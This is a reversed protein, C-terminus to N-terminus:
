KNAEKMEMFREAINKISFGYDKSILDGKGSKGFKNVDISIGDKGAFNKLECDSSMEITMINKENKAIIRNQYEESQSKFSNINPMSVVDTNIGKENLEKQVRIALSVESGTAILCGDLNRNKNKSIIYGGYKVGNEDSTKIAPINQRTLVLVSPKSKDNAIQKWCGLVERADAPRFVNLNPMSRFGALQEVPEHTPGDEGVAISDHTFIFISPVQSIAALRVAAKAYDSFVFFTSAYARLGGHLNIGNVAASMGFERIGFYVNSGIYNQATFTSSNEINTDNSSFLDASGGFFNKNKKAIEQMIFHNIKRTSLGEVKELDVSPIYLNNEVLTKADDHYKTKYEDFLKQWEHYTKEKDKIITDFLIEVKPEVYFSDANINLNNKLKITDEKGIPNGHVKNTGQNPSGYGIITKVEILTPNDNKKASLIASYIESLDNGDNVRIYDWGAAKFREKQNENSSLDLPGDLTIDNSDYLVILKNLKNHGAINIAEQSVGEMLDGDGCLAYTYHDVVKYEPKNYLAALHSEAMAMGVAMGIGQGLPGTTADIGPTHGFEPHGPTKSGKQRFSKLDDLTVDFKNLYLLSYLLASGHGASLVFRDRNIWLPDKPNFKLIKEFLVYAMPAADLPLGPHGSNAKNIMDVSLSRINNVALKDNENFNYM